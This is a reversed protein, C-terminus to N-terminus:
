QQWARLVRCHTQGGGSKRNGTSDDFDLHIRIFFFGLPLGRCANHTITFICIKTESLTGEMKRFTEGWKKMVLRDTEQWSNSPTPTNPTTSPPSMRSSLIREALSVALLGTAPNQRSPRRVPKISWVRRVWSIVATVLSSGSSFGLNAQKDIQTLFSFQTM